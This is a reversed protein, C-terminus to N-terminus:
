SSITGRPFVGQNIWAEMVEYTIHGKCAWWLDLTPAFNDWGCYTKSSIINNLQVPVDSIDGARPVGLAIALKFQAPNASWDPWNSSSAAYAMKSQHLPTPVRSYLAVLDCSCHYEVQCTAEREPRSSAEKLIHLRRFAQFRKYALMNKDKNQTSWSSPPPEAGLCGKFGASGSSHISKRNMQYILLRPPRLGVELLTCPCLGGALFLLFLAWELSSPFLLCCVPWRFCIPFIRHM